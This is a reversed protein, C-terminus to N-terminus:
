TMRLLGRSSSDPPAPATKEGRGEEGKKGRLRSDMKEGVWFGMSFYGLGHDGEFEGELVEEGVAVGVGGEVEGADADGAEAAVVAVAFGGEEVADGPGEPAFGAAGAVGVEEVVSAGVHGDFEFEVGGAGAVADGAAVASEVAAAEFELDVGVAGEVGEGAVADALSLGFDVLDGAHVVVGEDVAGEEDLAAGAFEGVFGGGFALFDEAFDDAQISEVFELLAAAVFGAVFGLLAVFEFAFEFIHSLLGGGPVTKLLVEFGDLVGELGEGVVQLRFVAEGVLEAEFDLVELAAGGFGFFDSAADGLEFGFDGVVIVFGLLM